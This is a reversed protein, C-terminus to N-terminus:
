AKLHCLCESVVTIDINHVLCAALKKKEINTSLSFHVKDNQIDM